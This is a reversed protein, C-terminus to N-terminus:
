TRALIHRVYLNRKREDALTSPEGHGPLLRTDPPLSMVRRISAELEPHHSDPLDTRGISGGIILDGGILAKETPLYFCCHGPAHGPTHIVEVPINGIALKQGDTLYADAKRPPFGQPLGFMSTQVAPNALKPEELAHILVKADRFARTVVAHDWVHDFHGHTLWLGVIDWDSCKAQDILAATTDNPADFLVAVGAVEDAVLFCNTAAIGGTNMHVKMIATMM